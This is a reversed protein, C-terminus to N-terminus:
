GAPEPGRWFPRRYVPRFGAAVINRYSPDPRGPAQEGTEVVLRDLGLERAREIRAAFLAKHLGRGRHEPDTAAFSLWGADASEHLVAAAVLAGEDEVGFCHWGPRGPLAALWDAFGAPLGFVRAQLEGLAPGDGAGLDRVISATSGFPAPETGRVFKIWAYDPRWGRARLEAEGAAGARLALLAPGGHRAFFAELAAPLGDALPAEAAAGLAHNVLRIGPLAAAAVAHVAGFREAALGLAAAVAAPAAAWQDRYGAIEPAELQAAREDSVLGSM